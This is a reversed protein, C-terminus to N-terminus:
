ITKALAELKEEDAKKAKSRITIVPEVLDINKWKEVYSKITKGASPAWSGNEVIAVKRNQFNKHSLELLFLEMAPFVGADYSSSMLVLKSYRFAEGIAVSVPVRNLELIKVKQGTAEIMKKLDYAAEKTHGYITAYAILVGDEEPQYSSWTNYLNLYYGLNETLIPGHLPCIVNIELGSLKKLANQVQMGYKGVINFYYRRAETAWDDEVDLTGFKGFADASFLVKEEPVYTMMVEPWHVMPAMYFQLTHKGLSLTDGEKVVHKKQELGDIEFFNNIMTFTTANGVVKMNPYLKCLTDINAAHDPEMHSVILYDVERGDLEEKLTNLWAESERIDITDMVAVKDDLIVYSNYSVGYELPYQNEFLDLTHDNAGIFKISESWM